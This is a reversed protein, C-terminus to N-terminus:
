RALMENSNTAQLCVISTSAGIGMIQVTGTGGM